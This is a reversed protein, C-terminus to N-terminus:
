RLFELYHPDSPAGARRADQGRLRGTGAARYMAFGAAHKGALQARSYHETVLEVDRYALRGDADEYEIRLDPFEVHGDVIPLGTARAFSEADNMPTARFAPEDPRPPRVDGGYDSGRNRRPASDPGGPQHRHLHRQYDRKLEYDLAIRTVTGGASEIRAAEAQYLRYLQADHALERPKVLGAHFEQDRDPGPTRASELLAKGQRTLVVIRTSQHNIEVTRLEVLGQEALSRLDGTWVDRSTQVPTEKLTSEGVGQVLDDARVVRFTGVTALMRSESERLRYDRTRLHVIARAEGKPLMLRHMPVRIPLRDSPTARAETPPSTRPQSPPHRSDSLDSRTGRSM